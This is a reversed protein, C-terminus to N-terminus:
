EPKEAFALSECLALVAGAVAIQNAMKTLQGAGAGGVLEARKTYPKMIEIAEAVDAKEGGCFITLQGKPRGHQRRNNPCGRIQVRPSSNM